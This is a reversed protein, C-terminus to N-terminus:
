QPIQLVDAYLQCILKLKPGLQSFDLPKTMCISAGLSYCLRLEEPNASSSLMCVPICNTIESLKLERLIEWGDMHSLRQDLFIIDPLTFGDPPSETKTLLALAKAEDDFSQFTYSFTESLSANLARDFLLGFVEDDDILIINLSKKAITQTCIM